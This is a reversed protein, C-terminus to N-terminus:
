VNRDFSANIKKRSCYYPFLPPARNSRRIKESKRAYFVGRDNKNHMDGM